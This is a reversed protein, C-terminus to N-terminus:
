RAAALFSSVSVRRMRRQAWERAEAEDTFGIGMDSQGGPLQIIVRWNPGDDDKAIEIHNAEEPVIANWLLPRM